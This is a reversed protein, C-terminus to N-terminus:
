VPHMKKPVDERNEAFDLTFHAHSNAALDHLTGWRM